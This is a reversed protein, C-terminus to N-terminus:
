ACRRRAVHPPCVGNCRAPDCVDQTSSYRSIPSRMRKIFEISPFQKMLYVRRENLLRRGVKCELKMKKKSGRSQWRRVVSGGGGGGSVDYHSVIGSIMM